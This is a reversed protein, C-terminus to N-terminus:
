TLSPSASPVASPTDSPSTTPAPTPTATPSPNPSASVPPSPSGAPSAPVPTRPVATPRKTTRPEGAPPSPSASPEVTPMIVQLDIRFDFSPMTSSWDPSVSIEVQGYQSLYSRAEDLSKGLVAAKLQNADVDPVQVAQVTVPVVLASGQTITAGVNTTVSSEVLAYGTRVAARARREALAVVSAMDATTATGTAQCDLQFTAEIQNLLLQPDPNCTAVGLHASEAFLDSGSPVATPATLADQLRAALAALLTTKAGDIDAQVVMPTVTHTGGSTPNANTVAILAVVLDVPLKVIRGAPVNGSVGKNVAQIPADATGRTITSGSVTAKPVTVTKTTVFAIGSGTSVQTGALIPVPYLTNTSSFTVTGTAATDVVNQGTANFTDSAEVPFAQNLGPVKLAQDNAAAITPDINVSVTMPGLTESRLTVVVTASPYFFFAGAALVALTLLAAGAFLPWSIRRRGPSSTVAPPRGAYRPAGRSAPKGAVGGPAVTLALEDLAAGTEFPPVGHAGRAAAAESREYENVTAYVPLDASRAVSQVSADATIIALRKNRQRAERALLRFNIRSTAVRSGGSLVLAIRTDSSDRIRAAASTIEDDIDLYYIAM